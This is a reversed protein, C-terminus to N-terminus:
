DADDKVNALLEAIRRNLRANEDAEDTLQSHLDIVKAALEAPSLRLLAALVPPNARLYDAYNM